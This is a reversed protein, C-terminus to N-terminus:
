TWRPPNAVSELEISFRQFSMLNTVEGGLLPNNAPYAQISQSGSLLGLYPALVTLTGGSGIPDLSAKVASVSARFDQQRELVTAGVGRVWGRLEIVQIDDVRNRRYRGARGPVVDDRGRVDPHENFGRHIDFYVKLTQLDLVGGSWTWTLSNLISPPM